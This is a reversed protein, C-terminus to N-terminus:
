QKGPINEKIVTYLTEPTEDLVGVEGLHQIFNNPNEAFFNAIEIFDIITDRGEYFMKAMVTYNFLDLLTDRISEDEVNAKKNEVLTLIRNVKDFARVKYAVEGFKELSKNFSDGYDANKKLYTLVRDRIFFELDPYELRKLDDSSCWAGHGTKTFGGCDHGGINEFFEVAYIGTEVAKVEGRKRYTSYTGNCIDRLAEVKDGPKFKMKMKM